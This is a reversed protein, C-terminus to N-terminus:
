RSEMPNSAVRLIASTAASHSYRPPAPRSPDPRALSYCVVVVNLTRRRVRMSPCQHRHSLRQRTADVPGRPAHRPPQHQICFILFFWKYLASQLSKGTGM